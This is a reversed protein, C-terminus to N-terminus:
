TQSCGMTSLPPARLVRGVGEQPYICFQYSSFLASVNKLSAAVEYLAQAGTFLGEDM